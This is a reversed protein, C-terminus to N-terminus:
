FIEGLIGEAIGGVGQGVDDVAQAVDKVNMAMDDVISQINSIIPPNPAPTQRKAKLVEGLVGQAIDGLGQGADAVAQAVDEANGAMAGLIAQINNIIATDRPTQRKVKLVKDLVGQAIGGVGQGADDLAQAVDKFNMAMDDLISQVNQIIPPKTPAQRKFIEGLVGEAIGGVGQGADFVGQAVDEINMAMDDMISQVNQIVPPNAPTQRKAVVTSTQSQPIPTAMVAMPVILLPAIISQFHMKFKDKLVFFNYLQKPINKLLYQFVPLIYSSHHTQSISNFLM